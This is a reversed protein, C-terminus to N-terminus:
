ALCVVLCAHLFIHGKSTQLRLSVEDDIMDLSQIHCRLFVVSLSQTTLLLFLIADEVAAWALM